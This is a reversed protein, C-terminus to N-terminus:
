LNGICIRHMFIRPEIGSKCDYSKRSYRNSEPMIEVIKKNVKEGKNDRLNILTVCLRLQRLDLSFLVVCM